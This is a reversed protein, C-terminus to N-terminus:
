FVLSNVSSGVFQDLVLQSYWGNCYYGVRLLGSGLGGLVWNKTRVCQRAQHMFSIHANNVQSASPPCRLGAVVSRLLVVFHMLFVFVCGFLRGLHEPSQAALCVVPLVQSGACSYAVSGTLSHALSHTRLQALARTRLQALSHTRLQALSHTLSHIRLCVLWHDAM